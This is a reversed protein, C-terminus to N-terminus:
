RKAIALVSLGFPLKIFKEPLLLFKGLTDFTRVESEPIRKKKLLKMLLLWGVAAAWNLYRTKIKTFGVGELKDKAGQTTYRRFHGLERDFNSLLTEHAPVLLILNGGLNLLQHMNKLAKKDNKIHELVNLCVITDFKQNEFFYKGSEIDGFGTYVRKNKRKALTKIYDSNIDIGWVKGYNALDFTFNGIGAGIELISEGLYPKITDLLWNNYWRVMKMTKLTEEGVVDM